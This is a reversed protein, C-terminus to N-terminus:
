SLSEILKEHVFDHNNNVEELQEPTMPHGDYDADMIFADSYDPRDNHDVGSFEINNIKTPEM